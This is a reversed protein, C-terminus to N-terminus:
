KIKQGREETKEFSNLFSGWQNNELSKGRFKLNDNM